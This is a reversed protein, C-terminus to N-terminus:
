LYFLRAVDPINHDEIFRAVAEVSDFLMAGSLDPNWAFGSRGHALYHSTLLDVIVFSRLVDPDFPVSSDHLSDDDFCAMAPVAICLTKDFVFDNM